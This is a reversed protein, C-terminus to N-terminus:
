RDSGNKKEALAKAILYKVKNLTKRDAEQLGTEDDNSSTVNFQQVLNLIEKTDLTMEHLNQLFSLVMQQSKRAERYLALQEQYSLDDLSNFLKEELINLVSTLRKLRSCELSAQSFLTAELGVVNDALARVLSNVEIPTPKTKRRLLKPKAKPLSEM